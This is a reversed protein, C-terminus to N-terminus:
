KNKHTKTIGLFNNQRRLYVFANHTRTHRTFGLFNNQSQLYVFANNTRTRRQLVSFTTKVKCTFLRTTRTRRQLVSFTTKVKCTFLRTKHTRTICTANSLRGYCEHSPFSPLTNSTNTSVPLSTCRVTSFYYCLRLPVLNTNTSAVSIPESIYLQIYHFWM